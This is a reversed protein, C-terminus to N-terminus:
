SIEPYKGGGKKLRKYVKRGRIKGRKGNGRCERAFSSLKAKDFMECYEFLAKDGNRKVNEIIESVTKEVNAKENTRAFIANNEVEGYKLIKIM